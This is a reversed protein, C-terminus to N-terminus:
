GHSPRRRRRGGTRKVLGLGGLAMLVVASPEPAMFYSEFIRATIQEGRHNMHVLDRRFYSYPQGHNQVFDNYSGRADLFGVGRDEALLRLRDRFGVYLNHAAGENNPPIAFPLNQSADAGATGTAVLIELSYEPNAADFALIEDIVEGYAQEDANHSIGGILVVNHQDATLKNLVYSQVRNQGEEAYWWAGKGGEVSLQLQLNAEPYHQEVLIDWLSRYTDNVISDGLMVTNITQGSHLAAATRPMRQPFNKSEENLRVQRGLQAYLDDAWDIFPQDDVLNISVDDIIAPNSLSGTFYTRGSLSTTRAFRVGRTWDASAAMPHRWNVTVPGGKHWFETMILQDSSLPLQPTGVDGGVSLAGPANHGDDTVAKAKTGWDRYFNFWAPPPFSDFHESGTHHNKIGAQAVTTAVTALLVATVAPLWRITRRGYRSM